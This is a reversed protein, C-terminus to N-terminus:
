RSGTICVSVLRHWPSLPSSATRQSRLSHALTSLTRLLPTGITPKVQYEKVSWTSQSEASRSSLPTTL